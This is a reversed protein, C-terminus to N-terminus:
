ERAIVLTHASHCKHWPSIPRSLDEVGNQLALGIIVLISAGFSEMNAEMDMTSQLIRRARGLGYPRTALELSGIFPGCSCLLLMNGSYECHSM